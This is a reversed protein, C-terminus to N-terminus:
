KLLFPKNQYLSNYYKMFIFKMKSQLFSGATCNATEWHTSVLADTNIPTLIKNKMENWQGKALCNNADVHFVYLTFLFDGFTM